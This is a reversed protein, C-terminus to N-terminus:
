RCMMSLQDDLYTYAKYLWWCRSVREPPGLPVMAVYYLQFYHSLAGTDMVCEGILVQAKMLTRLYAVELRLM